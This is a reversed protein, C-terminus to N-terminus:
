PEILLDIAAPSQSVGGDVTEGSNVGGDLLGYLVVALRAGDELVHGGGVIISQSCDALQLAQDVAQLYRAAVSVDVLRWGRSLEPASVM